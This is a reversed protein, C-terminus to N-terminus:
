SREVMRHCCNERPIVKKTIYIVTACGAGTCCEKGGGESEGQRVHVKRLSAGVQDDSIEMRKEVGGSRQWM